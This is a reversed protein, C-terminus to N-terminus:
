QQCDRRDTTPHKSASPTELFGGRPLIETICEVIWVLVVIPLPSVSLIVDMDSVVYARVVKIAVQCGEYTGRSVKAYGGGTVEVSGESCDPIHM